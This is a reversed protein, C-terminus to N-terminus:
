PEGRSWPPPLGARKFVGLPGVSVSNLMKPERQDDVGPSQPIETGEAVEVVGLGDLVVLFDCVVSDLHQVAQVAGHLVHVVDLGGVGLQADQVGVRQVDVGVVPLLEQGHHHGSQAPM